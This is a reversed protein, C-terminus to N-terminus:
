GIELCVRKKWGGLWNQMGTGHSSRGLSEHFWPLQERPQAGQYHPGPPYGRILLQCAWFTIKTSIRIQCFPYHQLIERTIVIRHWTGMPFLVHMQCCCLTSCWFSLGWPGSMLMGVDILRMNFAKIEAPNYGDLNLPGGRLKWTFCNESILPQFSICLSHKWISIGESPWQLGQFFM